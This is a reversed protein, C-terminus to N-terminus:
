GSASRSPRAGPRATATPRCWSRSRGCSSPRSPRPADGARARVRAPPRPRAEAPLAHRRPDDQPQELVRGAGFDEREVLAVSLGRQAADWAVAAGYIGGGVVAVDWERAALAALDRKVRPVGRATGSSFRLAVMTADDAAEVPGRHARVAADVHALLAPLDGARHVKLLAELRSMGFPEGTEDETEVLGDTFLFLADGDRMEVTREEYGGGPYLGPPRGTSSLREARGDRRLM